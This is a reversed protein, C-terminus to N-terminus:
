HGAACAIAPDASMSRDSRVISVQICTQGTKAADVTVTTDDVIRTEVSTSAADGGVPAWAYSDGEYPQPNTWTFTVTSGDASYTGTLNEPTPVSATELASGADDQGSGQGTGPTDVSTNAADVRDMRPLAVLAIITVIIAAAAAISAGIAVPKIWRRNGQAGVNVGATPAAGTHALLDAPYQPTDPATFSTANRYLHQQARQMARGFQLANHYRDEPDRAMAKRLIRDVEEPVGNLPKIEEHLIAHALEERSHFHPRGYEFPSKTTLMAFLTAGLSYIDSRFDGGRGGQAVVEPAAWPLSYGIAQSASYINEAIGFDALVPQGLSNILINAPKIDRHVINARHATYLASAMKVGLDLMQGPSLYQPPRYTREDGSLLDRYSGSPVYELVMYSQQTEPVIGAEYISLINSHASLRALNDAEKRFNLSAQPDIAKKSVKVAVDRKPSVQHYLYVDATGGSGLLGEYEYGRLLPPYAAANAM